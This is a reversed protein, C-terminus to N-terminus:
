EDENREYRYDVNMIYVNNGYLDKDRICYELHFRECFDIYEKSCDHPLVISIEGDNYASVKNIINLLKNKDRKNMKEEMIMGNM